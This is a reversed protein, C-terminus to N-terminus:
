SCRVTADARRAVANLAEMRGSVGPKAFLNRTHTTVTFYRTGLEWAIQQHSLGRALADLIDAERATLGAARASTWVRPEPSAPARSVLRM